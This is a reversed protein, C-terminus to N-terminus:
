PGIQANYPGIQATKPRPPGAVATVFRVASKAGAPARNSRTHNIGEGWDEKPYRVKPFLAMPLRVRRKLEGPLRAAVDAASAALAEAPPAM